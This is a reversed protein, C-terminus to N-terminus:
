GKFSEFLLRRQRDLKANISPASKGGAQSPISLDNLSGMGGFLLGDLYVAQKASIPTDQNDIMEAIATLMAWWALAGPDFPGPESEVYATGNWHKAGPSPPNIYPKLIGATERLHELFAQKNV